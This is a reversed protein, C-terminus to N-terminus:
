TFTTEDVNRYLDFHTYELKEQLFAIDEQEPTIEKELNM